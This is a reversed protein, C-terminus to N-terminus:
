REFEEEIIADEEEIVEDFSKAEDEEKESENELVKKETTEKSKQWELFELYEKDSENM